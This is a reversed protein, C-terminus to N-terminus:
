RLIGFEHRVDPIGGHRYSVSSIDPIMDVGQCILGNGQAITYPSNWFETVVLMLGARQMGPHQGIMAKDEGGLDCADRCGYHAFAPLITRDNSKQPFVIGQGTERRRWASEIMNRRYFVTM